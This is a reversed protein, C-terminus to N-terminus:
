HPARSDESRYPRPSAQEGGRAPSSRDLDSAAILVGLVYMTLFGTTYSALASRGIWDIMSAILVALAAWGASSDLRRAGRALVVGLTVMGGILAITGIIGVDSQVQAYSSDLFGADGAYSAAPPATPDYAPPASILPQQARTSGSGLKGVGNGTLFSAAGQVSQDWATTRGNLTFLLPEAPAGPSTSATTTALVFLGTLIGAAAVVAAQRQWGRRVALLLLLVGVQFAATRVSTAAFVASAALLLVVAQRRSAVFFALAVGLVALAALQFPDEFSGSTRLGGDGNDRVQAGFQYGWRYVLDDAGVWQQVWALMAELPLVVTMARVLHRATAGPQACLMGVVLLALVELLLRAGYFWNGDHGGAPNVLYLATLVGVAGLPGALPRLRALLYPQRVLGAVVLGALLVVYGDKAVGVLPSLRLRLEDSSCFILLAGWPALWPFRSLLATSAALALLGIAGAAALLDGGSPRLLVVAVGALLIPVGVVLTLGLPDSLRLRHGDRPAAQASTM